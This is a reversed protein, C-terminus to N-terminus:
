NFGILFLSAFSVFFGLFSLVAIYSIHVHTKFRKGYGIVTSLLAIALDCAFMIAFWGQGLNRITETPFITSINAFFAGLGFSLLLTISLAILKQATNDPTQKM